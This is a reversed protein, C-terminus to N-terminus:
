DWRCLEAMMTAWSNVRDAGASYLEAMVTAWSNVRDAGAACSRGWQLGATLETLAM